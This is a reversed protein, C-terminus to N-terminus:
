LEASVNVVIEGRYGGHEASGLGPQAVIRFRGEIAGGSVNVRSVLPSLREVGDGMHGVAQLGHRDDYQIEVDLLASNVGTAAATGKSPEHTALLTASQLAIVAHANGWVVFPVEAVLSEEFEADAASSRPSTKDLVQQDFEFTTGEPFRIEAIPGITISINVTAPAGDAVAPVAQLGGLFVASALIRVTDLFTVAQGTM